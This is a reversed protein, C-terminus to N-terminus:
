RLQLPNIFDNLMILVSLSLLLALGILHVMGEREPAIPRGRVIEVLVFLIRGGDLAPIPLLNFFGLAISFTAIVDLIPTIRGQEVSERLVFGSFQSMGVVSVPRAEEPSLAGSILQSPLRAITLIVESFRDGSYRLSDLLSLPVTGIQDVEAVNLGSSSESVIFNGISVGIRGQGEPPNIRPTLEVNLSEEGRLITLQIQDGEPIAYILDRLQGRYSLPEGEVALIRDGPQIGADQAPSNDAVGSIETFTQTEGNAISESPIVLDVMESSEGRQVTLTISEGRSNLQDFFEANSRFTQGNVQMIIDQAQLGAQALRSDPNIELVGLAVGVPQPIGILAIIFYLVLALAFNALAGAAMFFIRGLPRAENVAKPKGSIQRQELVELLEAREKSVTEDDVPRIMDEGLPRVFGGLPVWNLTFETERWTFLKRARPPFGLGFELITIGVAKGALFHGLEHVLILPTLVVFFGIIASLVGNNLLSELM